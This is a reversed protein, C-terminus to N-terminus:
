FVNQCGIISEDFKSHNIQNARLDFYSRGSVFDFIAAVNSNCFMARVSLCGKDVGMLDVAESYCLMAAVEVAILVVFLARALADSPWWCCYQQRGRRRRRSNSAQAAANSLLM